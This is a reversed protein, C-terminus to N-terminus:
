QGRRRKRSESFVKVLIQKNLRFDVVVKSNKKKPLTKKAVMDNLVLSLRKTDDKCFSLKQNTVVECTVKNKKKPIFVIHDSSHYRLSFDAVVSPDLKKIFIILDKCASRDQCVKKDVTIHILSGLSAHEKFLDRSVLVGHELLMANDNVCCFPAYGEISLSAASPEGHHWTINKVIPFKKKIRSYFSDFSFVSLDVTELSKEVYSAMEKKTSSSYIKKFDVTVHRVDFFHDIALLAGRHVAFFVAYVGLGAVIVLLLKPLHRKVYKVFNVSKKKRKM